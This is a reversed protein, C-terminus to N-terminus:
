SPGHPLPSGWDDLRLAAELEMACSNLPRDLREEVARLRNIVTQRSVGLAAAASSTNREAVFYARLTQRLAEGGDRAQSLPELYLRRLSSVLVTDQLMSALLAVEGYCVSSRPKRLAISVAASAQQHSLRWGTYGEGPEGLALFGEVFWSSSSAIDAVEASTMRRRGGLWGWVRMRGQPVVLLRRDLSRALGRLADTAGAGGAIVGIHWGDLDYSLESAEVLDGTLLRNVREIRREDDSSLNDQPQERVYEETVAVILQDFLAAMSRMSQQLGANQGYDSAEIEESILDGILTYGAFYRRLVVDLSVGNRAAMRAQTLAIAPLPPPEDCNEFAALGYEVVAWITAHLGAGYKPDSADVPGGVAHVRALVAQEIEARRLRLSSCIAVRASPPTGGTRSIRSMAVAQM